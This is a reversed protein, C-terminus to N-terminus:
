ADRLLAPPPNAFFERMSPVDGKKEIPVMYIFSAVPKDRRVDYQYGEADCNMQFGRKHVFNRDEDDVEGVERIVKRISNALISKVQDEDLEVVYGPRQIMSVEGEGTSVVDSSFAVFELGTVSLNQFYPCKGIWRQPMSDDKPFFLDYMTVEEYGDLKGTANRKPIKAKGISPLAGCWYLHRPKPAPMKFEVKIADFAKKDAKLPELKPAVEVNRGPRVELAEGEAKAM